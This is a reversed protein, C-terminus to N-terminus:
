KKSAQSQATLLYQINNSYLKKIEDDQIDMGYEKRYHQIAGLAITSQNKTIYKKGLVEVIKDKMDELSEKEYTKTKLVVHYGESTTIVSTTYEGDKLKIAAKILEDYTEALDDYGIKGLSGGNDKTATDKSYQKALAKFTNEVNDGNKKATNLKEIIEEVTKKAAAEAKSKEEKTASTSAESKILIHSLDMDGVARNEYYDKIEEDKIQDKAYEEIAHSQLQTVYLYNQYAKITEYKTNQQIAALLEEESGYQEKYSDIYYKAIEEATEKYDPFETELIYTDIMSVLADLGFEDKLKTYFDDVSIMEGDKFKVIADKGNELKPVKGCGSALLMIACLGIIKKKM